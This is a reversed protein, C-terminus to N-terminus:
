LNTKYLQVYNQSITRMGFQDVWTTANKVLSECLEPDQKLATIANELAKVDRPPVLVGTQHDLVLESTGPINTAIVPIQAIMAEMVVTPLGEWLSPLVFLDWHKILSHVNNRLGLFKINGTLNKSEVLQHLDTKLEGDGIIHLICRPDQKIIGEMAEILYPYGKQEALRGVCGIIYNGESFMAQDESSIPQSELKKIQDIDIGNYILHVKEPDIKGPRRERLYECVAESVGIEGDLYQPFIRQIFLPYLLWTWKGNNWEKRIHSTRYATKTKNFLKLIVAALTGLQFHSHAVDPKFNKIEHFLNRMGRLFKGMNNYGDWESVFFTQIGMEQLDKQWKLETETGV